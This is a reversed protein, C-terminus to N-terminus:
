ETGVMGFIELKKLKKTDKKYEDWTVHFMDMFRLAKGTSILYNRARERSSVKKPFKEDNMVFDVYYDIITKDRPHEATPSLTGVLWDYYARKHSEM